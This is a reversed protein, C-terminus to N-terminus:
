QSALREAESPLLSDQYDSYWSESARRRHHEIFTLVVEIM